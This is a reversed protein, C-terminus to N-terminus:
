RWFLFETLVLTICLAAILCLVCENTIVPVGVSWVTSYCIGIQELIASFLKCLYM